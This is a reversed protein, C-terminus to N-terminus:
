KNGDWLLPYPDPNKRSKFLMTDNNFKPPTNNYKLYQYQFDKESTSLSYDKFFAICTANNIVFRWTGVIFKGDKYKVRYKNNKYLWLEYEDTKSHIFINTDPQITDHKQPFQLSHNGINVIINKDIKHTTPNTLGSLNGVLYFCIFTLIISPVIFKKM